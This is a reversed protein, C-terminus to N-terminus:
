TLTEDLRHPSRAGGGALERPDDRGIIGTGIRYRTPGADVVLAIRQQPDLANWIPLRAIVHGGDEAVHPDVLAEVVLLRCRELGHRLMAPRAKRRAHGREVM